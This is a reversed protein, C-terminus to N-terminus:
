KGIQTGAVVRLARKRIEVDLWTAGAPERLEGDLQFYLPAGTSEFRIREV